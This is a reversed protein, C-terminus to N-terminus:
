HSRRLLQALETALIQQQLPSLAQMRHVMIAGVVDASAEGIRSAGDPSPEINIKGPRGQIGNWFDRVDALGELGGIRGNSQSRGQSASTVGRSSSENGYTYELQRAQLIGVANRGLWENTASIGSFEFVGLYFNKPDICWLGVTTHNPMSEIPVFVKRGHGIFHCPTKEDFIIFQSRSSDFYVKSQDSQQNTLAKDVLMTAFFLPRIKAQEAVPIIWTEGYDARQLLDRLKSWTRDQAQQLLERMRPSVKVPEAIAESRSELESFAEELVLGSDFGADQPSGLNRAAWDLKDWDGALALRMDPILSRVTPISGLIHLFSRLFPHSDFLFRAVERGPLDGGIFVLNRQRRTTADRYAEVMDHDSRANVVTEYRHFGRLRSRSPGREPAVMLNEPFFVALRADPFRQQKPSHFWNLVREREIDAALALTLSWESLISQYGFRKIMARNSVFCLAAVGFVALTGCVLRYSWKIGNRQLQQLHVVGHRMRRIERDVFVGLLMLPVILACLFLVYVWLFAGLDALAIGPRSAMAEWAGKAQTRDVFVFFCAFGVVIGFSLLSVFRRLIVLRSMLARDELFQGM